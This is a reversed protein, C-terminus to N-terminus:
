KLEHLSVNRSVPCTLFSCQRPELTAELPKRLFPPLRDRGQGRDSLDDLMGSILRDDCQPRVDHWQDQAVQLPLGIVPECGQVGERSRSWDCRRLTSAHLLHGGGPQAPPFLMAVGPSTTSLSKGPSRPLSHRM